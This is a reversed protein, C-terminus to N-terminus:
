IERTAKELFKLDKGDLYKGITKRVTKHYANLWAKEGDDLLKVDIADLDFPVLTITEFACFTGYETKEKEVCLVLNEHRIGFKGEEYFGPENSTVMGPLVAFKSTVARPSINQPGEHVNLLYGVGHGTGHKFDMGHAYMPASSIMDLRAGTMGKPFTARALAIHSKLVITFARKEENTVKGMAFTRTIDTTGYRYQAGSDVLLLGKNEVVKDTEPTASYHVIAGNSAYGCITDFSLDLFNKSERRFAELKDALSIESMVDKGANEKLYRMFKLVAVGDEVHAKKMNKIEVANKIAKRVTTPFSDTEKVNKILSFLAYNTKEKDILVRGEIQSAVGYVDNYPLTNIDNKALNKKCKADLKREDIFLTAGDKSVIAYAYNVPNYQIDSGRMNFLWAIDDLSSVLAYECGQKEIDKQLNEIKSRVSEGTANDPLFWAKTPAVEPRDQWIRDIVEGCDVLEVGKVSKKMIEVFEVTATTFDFAIKPTDSLKKVFEFISPVGEEGAKMLVTDTAKLQEAAQIFYRGDTWLYAGDRTVVLTGASGTFGCLFARTKFHDVVYESGHDDSTFVIYADIGGNRVYEQLQEIDRKM